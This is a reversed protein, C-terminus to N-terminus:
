EPLPAPAATPSKGGTTASDTLRRLADTTIVIMTALGIAAGATLGWATGILGAYRAGIVAGTLSTTTFVAYQTFLRPGHQMGRLAATFPIQTLYIGAQLAVPWALPAIGAYAGGRYWNLLPTAAVAVIGLGTGAIGTTIPLTRLIRRRLRAGDRQSAMTSSEPVLLGMAALVLNQAPQLIVLQALRLGAYGAPSLIAPVTLAIFQAQTQGILATATFWGSLRRTERLWRVPNGRWAAPGGRLLHGSIAATAGLGWAALLSGASMTQTFLLTIVALTQTGIWVLDVRLALDQRSQSQYSHRITDHALIAPLFVAAYGLPATMPTPWFLAAAGFGIACVLG